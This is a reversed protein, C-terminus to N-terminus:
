DLLYDGSDSRLADLAEAISQYRESSRGLVAEISRLAYLYLKEAEITRSMQEYLNALNQSTNLAPIYTKVAEQGLATEYGQLARQYMKEAEDLRGLKRYLIVLSNVTNHTSLHDIIWTKEKGQPARQFVKEAESHKGQDLFLDALYRLVWARSEDVSGNVVFSWCRAAHQILRRQTAWTVM